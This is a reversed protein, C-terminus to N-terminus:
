IRVHMRVCVRAHVRDIAFLVRLRVCVCVRMCVCAFAFLSMTAISVHAIETHLCTQTKRM